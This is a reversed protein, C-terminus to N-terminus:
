EICETIARKTYYGKRLKVGIAHVNKKMEAYNEDTITDLEARIDKLSKVCIGIKNKKVFDACAAKEWIIVPMYSAIYLSLKHPNNYKLYEGHTGSCTDTEDGDWVLGFSGCLHQPLEDADFAGMYKIKNNVSGADYNIGFLNINLENIKYLYGSKVRSLNGAVTVTKDYSCNKENGEGKCLYDFIDLVIISKERKFMGGTLMAKKMADNHCIVYDFRDLMFDCKRYFELKRESFVGDKYRISNLDHILAILKVKRKKLLEVMRISIPMCTMPYQYILSDGKKLASFAIMWDIICEIINIIRKIGNEDNKACFMLKRFGMEECIEEIDSPAKNQATSNNKKKEAIFYVM